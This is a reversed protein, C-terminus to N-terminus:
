IETNYVQLCLLGLERYKDIVSKKDELIWEVYYKDKIHQNYIEEKIISDKRKDEDQKLFLKNYYINNDKLWKETPERLYEPRGSVIFIEGKAQAYDTYKNNVIDRVPENVKDTSLQTDDFPNRGNILALTGDCDVLCCPTLTTDQKLIYRKDYKIDSGKIYRDYLSRIITEGIPKIRIADRKICVELPTDIFKERFVIGREKSVNEWYEKHKPSFNTDDVVLSFGKNLWSIGLSREEEIVIEEIQTTWEFAGLVYRIDDKNIRKYEPKRDILDNAFFSKGSGPLGVLLLIEQTDTNM